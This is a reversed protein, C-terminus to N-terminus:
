ATAVPGTCRGVCTRENIIRDVVSFFQMRSSTANDAWDELSYQIDTHRDYSFESEPQPYSAVIAMQFTASRM